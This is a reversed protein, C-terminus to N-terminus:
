TSKRFTGGAAGKSKEMSVMLNLARAVIQPAIAVGPTEKERTTIPMPIVKRSPERHEKV